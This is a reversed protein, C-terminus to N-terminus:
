VLKVRLNVHLLRSHCAETRYKKPFPRLFPM